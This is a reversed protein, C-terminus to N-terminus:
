GVENKDVENTSKVEKIIRKIIPIKNIYDDKHMRINYYKTKNRVEKNEFFCLAKGATEFYGLFETVSNIKEFLKYITIKM